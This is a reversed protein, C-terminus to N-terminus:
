LIPDLPTSMGGYAPHTAGFASLSSNGKYWIFLLLFVIILNYMTFDHLQYDVISTGVIKVSLDNHGRSRIAELIAYEVLKRNEPDQIADKDVRVSMNAVKNSLVIMNNFDAYGSADDYQMFNYITIESNVITYKPVFWIKPRMQMKEITKKVLNFPTEQYKM